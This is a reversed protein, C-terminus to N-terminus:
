LLSHLLLWPAALLQSVDGQLHLMRVQLECQLTERFGCVIVTSSQVYSKHIKFNLHTNCKVEVKLTTNIYEVQECLTFSTDCDNCIKTIDISFGVNSDDLILM